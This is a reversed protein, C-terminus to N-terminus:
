ETMEAQLSKLIELLEGDNSLSSEVINETSKKNSGRRRVNRSRSTLNVPKEGLPRSDSTHHEDLESLPSSQGAVLPDVNDSKEKQMQSLPLGVASDRVKPPSRKM